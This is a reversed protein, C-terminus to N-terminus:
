RFGAPRSSIWTRLAARASTRRMILTSVRRFMEMLGLQETLNYLMETFDFDGDFHLPINAKKEACKVCIHLSKKSGAILEQIHITAPNKKCIECLM